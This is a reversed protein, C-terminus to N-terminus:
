INQHKIKLIWSLLLPEQGPNYIACDPSAEESSYIMNHMQQDYCLYGNRECNRQAQYEEDYISPIGPYLTSPKTELSKEQPNRVATDVALNDSSMSENNDHSLENNTTGPQLQSEQSPNKLSVFNDKANDNTDPM